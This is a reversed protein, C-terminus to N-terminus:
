RNDPIAARLRDILGEVSRALKMLDATDARPLYRLDEATYLHSRVESCSGSAISLFRRFERPSGRKFGEAINTMTSRASRRIQGSLNSDEALKGQGCIQNVRRVLDRARQWAYLDEFKQARAM